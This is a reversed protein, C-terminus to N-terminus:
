RLMYRMIQKKAADGYNRGIPITVGSVLKLEDAALLEVVAQNVLFGRHVRVFGCHELAEQVTSLTERFRYNKEKSYIQLYNGEAEFYQIEEVPLSIDGEATRFHYHIMKSELEKECDALVKPLEENLFNKRVFGFPHFQLSDYVLEDHSTVFILLPRNKMDKLRRAVELGNMDPMDIDLLLIDCDQRQLLQLLEASTSLEAVASEPMCVRVQQGIQRLIQPEDDCVFIRM